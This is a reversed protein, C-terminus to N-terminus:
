RLILNFVVAQTLEDRHLCSTRYVQLLTSRITDLRNVREFCLSYYYLAKAAFIDLTRRSFTKLRSILSVSFLAAADNMEYRLLTTVILTCLFVEIEPLQTTPSFDEPPSASAADSAIDPLSSVALLMNQQMPSTVPIYSKVALLLVDKTVGHRVACNQRIARELLRSQNM